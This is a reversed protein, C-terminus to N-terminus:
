VSPLLGDIKEEWQERTWSSSIDSSEIGNIFVTVHVGCARHYKVALKLPLMVESAGCELREMVSDHFATRDMQAREHVGEKDLVGTLEVYIQHRSKHWTAEDSFQDMSKFLANVAPFFAAEDLLAVALSVEHLYTSQPHWPQIVNQFLFDV